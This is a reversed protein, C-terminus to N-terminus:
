VKELVMFIGIKLSKEKPLIKSTDSTMKLSSKSLTLTNVRGEM